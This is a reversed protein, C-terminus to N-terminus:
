RASGGGATGSLPERDTRAWDRRTTLQRALARAIVPFLIWTYLAYLHAVAIAWLWSRWGTGQRAAFCGLVGNSFGLLYVLPLTEASPVIGVTGTAWLVIATVFGLGVVSQWLPMFLYLAEELRAGVSFPARLISSLLDISQMNGQAWRTRQRLLPRLRPVGQQHVEARLEQHSRWGASLLRLGLDQDETLRDRWPGDAEVVGDLASLRNFQGNGGMGATGERNKGAQYVHGYIAFELDQMNTLFGGRNYIRVLSQVGGVGPDEFHAAVYPLADPSIRGDADVVVVIVRDREARPLLAGIRHYAANLGQGKGRRANPLDRRLVTLDPHDIAALIEPTRDDSGDDIVIITRHAVALALLREVSDGITVEENMAAVLFVWSFSDAGGERPEPARAVSRQGRIFLGVTWCCMIGIVLFAVILISQAVLPAGNFPFVLAASGFAIV